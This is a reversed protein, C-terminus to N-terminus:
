GASVIGLRKEICRGRELVMVQGERDPWTARHSVLVVSRGAMMRKLRELMQAEAGRDLSATPEDLIIMDASPRAFLRSLAIRQWEGLSLERGGEFWQGLPTDYGAPLTQILEEILAGRAAEQWRTRSEFAEPHGMGINEGASMQYRAFDQFLIAIREALSGPDWDDLSLGDLTVSGVSPRYLGTMLKLLTTKGAGNDGLVTLSQGPPLHLDLAVLAPATAGPYTFSVGEFRIGDGPKSGHLARGRSSVPRRLFAELTLLYLNDEHMGALISLLDASSVQAQRLVVILMALSGVSTTGRIASFTVWAFSVGLAVLSILGLAFGWAARRVSLKRDRLYWADFIGRHRKLLAPGIGYAKVEKAYDERTLVTEFYRQRRAEPSHDRFLRFADASLRLEVWLAPLTAAVLLALLWPSFTALVLGFGALAVMQQLALLARRVLNLPREPAQERVLRLQDNLEPTEFDSLDLALARKLVQEIVRQSLQVRLLADCLGLLRQFGLMLLVLGLEAVLLLVVRRENDTSPTRAATAVADVLLKALYAIGAPLAGTAVSLAALGWSLTRDTEWVLRVARKLLAPLALARTLVTMKPPDARSPEPAEPQPTPM